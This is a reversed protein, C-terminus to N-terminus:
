LVLGVTAVTRKLEGHRRVEGYLGVGGVGLRVGGGYNVGRVEATKGYSYVGYGAIAYPQLGPLRLPLVANLLYSRPSKFVGSGAAQAEARLAIPFLPVDLQLGASVQSTKFTYAGSDTTTRGAGLWLSFAKQASAAPAATAVLVFSLALQQIKM